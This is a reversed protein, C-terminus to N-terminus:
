RRKLKKYKKRGPVGDSFLVIAYLVLVGVILLMAVGFSLVEAM